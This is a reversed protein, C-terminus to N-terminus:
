KCFLVFLRILGFQLMHDFEAKAKRLRDPALRRPQSFVPPGTATIHHVMSHVVETSNFMPDVLDSYSSLLSHFQNGASAIFFKPSYLANTSSRAPASLSTFNHVLKQRKVDVLPNFHDLLDAGLIPYPLDAIIFIWRFSRNLGFDLTLSAQYTIFECRASIHVVKKTQKLGFTIALYLM